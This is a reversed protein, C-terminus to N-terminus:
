SASKSYRLAVPRSLPLAYCFYGIGIWVIQEIRSILSCALGVGGDLGLAEFVWKHGGERLGLGAMVFFFAMDLLTLAGWAAAAVLLSLHPFFVAM